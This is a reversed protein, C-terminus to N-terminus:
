RKAFCISDAMPSWGSTEREIKLSTEWATAQCDTLCATTTRSVAPFGTSDMMRLALGSSGGAISWCPTLVSKQETSALSLLARGSGGQTIGSALDHEQEM